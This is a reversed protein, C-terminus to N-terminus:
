SAEVSFVSRQLDSATNRMSLSTGSGDGTNSGSLAELDQSSPPDSIRRSTVTRKVDTSAEHLFPQRTNVQQQGRTFKEQQEIWSSVFQKKEVTVPLQTIMRMAMETEMSDAMDCKQIAHEAKVTAAPVTAAQRGVGDQVARETCRLDLIHEFEGPQAPEEVLKMGARNYQPQLSHGLSSQSAGTSWGGAASSQSVQLWHQREDDRLSMRAGYAGLHSHSVPPTFAQLSNGSGAYADSMNSMHLAVTPTNDMLAAQVPYKMTTADNLQTCAAGNGPVRHFGVGVNVAPVDTALTSAGIGNLYKQLVDICALNEIQELALILTVLSINRPTCFENFFVLTPSGMPTNRARTKMWEAALPSCNLKEALKEWNADGDL